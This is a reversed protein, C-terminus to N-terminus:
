STRRLAELASERATVDLVSVVLVPQDDLMTDLSVIEVILVTGDKCRHRWVGRESAGSARTKFAAIM